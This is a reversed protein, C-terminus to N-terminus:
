LCPSSIQHLGYRFTDLTNPKYRFTYTNYRIQFLINSILDFAPPCQNATITSHPISPLSMSTAIHLTPARCWCVIRCKCFGWWKRTLFPLQVYTAIHLTPERCWYIIRSQKPMKASVEDNAHSFIKMKM